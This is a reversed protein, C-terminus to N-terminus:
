DQGDIFLVLEGRDNKRLRLTKWLEKEDKSNKRSSNDRYYRKLAKNLSCGRESETDKAAASLFVEARAVSKKNHLVMANTPTSKLKDEGNGNLPQYEIAKLQKKAPQEQESSQAQEQQQSSDKRTRVRVWRGNKADRVMKDKTKEKKEEKTKSKKDSRSKDKEKDAKRSRNDKDKSRKDELKAQKSRKLPSHPSGDLDPPSPPLEPRSLLRNLGGTLGSHLPPAVDTMVVDGNVKYARASSLDLDEPHGRKRKKTSEKATSDVSTTSINRHHGPKPAPTEFQGSQGAPSPPFQAYSQYQEFHQQEAGFMYGQKLLEHKMYERAAEAADIVPDNDDTDMSDPDSEAESESDSSVESSSPSSPPSELPHTSNSEGNQILFDFVNFGPPPSPARPIVDVIAVRNDAEPAEMTPKSPVLAQSNKGAPSKHNNATATNGKKKPEKYLKGQYKQAESICSQTHSCTLILKFEQSLEEIVTVSTLSM